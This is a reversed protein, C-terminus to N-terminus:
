GIQGTAPLQFYFHNNGNIITIFFDSQSILDMGILIDYDDIDSCYVILDEYLYGNPLGVHIKYVGVREDDGVGMISTEAFPKIGLTAVVRPSIISIEAGTDWAASETFIHNPPLPVNDLNVAEFIYANTLIAKVQREYDKKYSMENNRVTKPIEISLTATYLM